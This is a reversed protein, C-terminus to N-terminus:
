TEGVLALFTQELGRQPAVREVGLGAGALARVLEARTAADARLVLGTPTREVDSVGPVGAAVQAARAPDDVDVVVLTAAEVLEAVPARRSRAPGPAHRRRRHVDGGGRRAPPQVRRRHPRHGRLAQAGRADGPDAAPRPREDARRARAARAPRADGARDGAAAEHRPQLDPGHARRRGRPRGGRAVEACTRTGRGAPRDGALLPAPERHGHPAAPLGPGRRLRGGAVAGAAGPRVRHGFVRIEGESPHILGMLMRLTTTKGAGNPGLLGLVQGKSVQLSVDSVARFGNGYAKGLGTLAVPVRTLAPDVADRRRLSAGRVAAGAALLAALGLVGALALLPVAVGGGARTVLPVTPVTLAPDLTLGVRYGRADAPMAYAQDTASLVVRLRHGAPVDHVIGPLAVTVTRGDPPLNELYVPSVLRRPLTVSGDPAVDALSAFLTADSATSSVSVEVRPSGVVTVAEALPETEFIAAQGPLVGGGLASLADGGGGAGAAPGPGQAGAGAALDSVAGSVGPLSSVAAPTAGPPSVALQEDGALKLRTTTLATTPLGPQPLGPYTSATRVLPAPDADASSAAADPVTVTFAPDGATGRDALERDLFRLRLRRLRETEDPGGDHGGRRWVVQVPTGNAAIASATADAESLGFLSDTQGQIILTPATIRDAFRAPSNAALLDLMARGPRGTTAAEVYGLCM